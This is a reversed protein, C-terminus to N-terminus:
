HYCEWHWEFYERFKPMFEEAAFRAAYATLARTFESKTGTVHQAMKLHMGPVWRRFKNQRPLDNGFGRLHGHELADAQLTLFEPCLMNGCRYNFMGTGTTQVPKRRIEERAAWIRRLNIELLAAYREPTLEFMRAEVAIHRAFREQFGRIWQAESMTAISNIWHENADSCVVPLGEHTPRILALRAAYQADRRADGMECDLTQRVRTAFVERSCQTVSKNSYLARRTSNSPFDNALAILPVVEALTAPPTPTNELHVKIDVNLTKPIDYYSDVYKWVDPTLREALAILRDAGATTFTGMFRQRLTELQPTGQWAPVQPAGQGDVPMGNIFKEGTLGTEQIVEKIMPVLHERYLSDGKMAAVKFIKEALMQHRFRSAFTEPGPVISVPEDEDTLETPNGGTMLYYLLPESLSMFNHTGSDGTVFQLLAGEPTSVAPDHLSSIKCWAKIKRFANTLLMAERLTKEDGDKIYRQWLATCAPIYIDLVRAPYAMEHGAILYGLLRKLTFKVVFELNPAYTPLVLNYNDEATVGRFPQKFISDYGDVEVRQEVADYFTQIATNLLAPALQIRSPTHFMQEAPRTMLFAQGRTDAQRYIEAWSEATIPDIEESDAVEFPAGSHFKRTGEEDSFKVCVTFARLKTGMEGLRRVAVEGAHTAVVTYDRRRASNRTIQKALMNSYKDERTMVLDQQKTLVFRANKLDSQHVQQAAYQQLLNKYRQTSHHFMRTRNLDGGRMYDGRKVGSEIHQRVTGLLTDVALLGELISKGQFYERKLADLVEVIGSIRARMEILIRASPTLDTTTILAADCPTVLDAQIFHGLESVTVYTREAADGQKVMFYASTGSVQTELARTIEATKEPLAQKRDVYIYRTKPFVSMIREADPVHDKMIGLYTMAVPVRRDAVWVQLDRLFTDTLLKEPAPQYAGRPASFAGDTAFLVNISSIPTNRGAAKAAYLEVVEQLREFALRPHTSGHWMDIRFEHSAAGARIRRSIASFDVASRFITAVNAETVQWLCSDDAWLVLEVSNGKALADRAVRQMEDLLVYACSTTLPVGWGSHEDFMSGSMDLLFVTLPRAEEAPGAGLQTLTVEHFRGHQTVAIDRNRAADHYVM